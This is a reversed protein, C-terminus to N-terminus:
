EIGVGCFLCCMEKSKMEGGPATISIETSGAPFSDGSAPLGKIFIEARYSNKEAIAVASSKASVAVPNPKTKKAKKKEGATM